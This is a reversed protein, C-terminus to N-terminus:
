AGKKTCTELGKIIVFVPRSGGMFLLEIEDRVSQDLRCFKLDAEALKGVLDLLKEDNVGVARAMTKATAANM